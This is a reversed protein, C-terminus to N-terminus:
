QTGKDPHHQKSKTLRDRSFREVKAYREPRSRGTVFKCGKKM